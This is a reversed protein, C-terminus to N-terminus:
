DSQGAGVSRKELPLSYGINKVNIKIFRCYVNQHGMNGIKLFDFNLGWGTFDAEAGAGGGKGVNCCRHKKVWTRQENARTKFM